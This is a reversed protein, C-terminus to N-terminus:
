RVSLIGTGYINNTKKQMNDLKDDVSGGDKFARSFEFGYQDRFPDAKVGLQGGFIDKEYTFAPKGSRINEMGFTGIPTEGLSSVRQQLNQIPQPLLSELGGAYMPQTGSVSIPEYRKTGQMYIDQLNVQDEPQVKFSQATNAETLPTSIREMNQRILNAKDFETMQIKELNDVEQIEPKKSLFKYEGTGKKKLVEMDIDSLKSVGSELANKAQNAKNYASQLASIGMAIPSFKGELAAEFLQPVLGQVREPEYVPKPVAVQTEAKGGFLGRGIDGFIDGFGGGAVGYRLDGTGTPIVGIGRGLNLIRRIKDQQALSTEGGIGELVKFSKDTIEQREEDSTKEGPRTITGGYEDSAYQDLIKELERSGSFLNGADSVGAITAPVERGPIDKVISNGSESVRYGLEDLKDKYKSGEQFINAFQGTRKPLSDLIRRQRQLQDEISTQYIQAIRDDNDDDGRSPIKGKDIAQQVRAKGKELNRQAAKKASSSISSMGGPQGQYGQYKSQKPASIKKGAKAQEWPSAM